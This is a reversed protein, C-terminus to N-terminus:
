ESGISLDRGCGLTRQPELKIRLLVHIYGFGPDVGRLAGPALGDSSQILLWKNRVRM